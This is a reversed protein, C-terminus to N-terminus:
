DSDLEDLSRIKLTQSTSVATAKAIVGPSVGLELLKEMKISSREVPYFAVLGGACVVKHLAPTKKVIEKIRDTIPKKAESAAREAKGWEIHRAVLARLTDADESSVENQDELEEISPPLPEPEKMEKPKRPNFDPVMSAGQPGSKALRDRRAQDMKEKIDSMRDGEISFTSVTM